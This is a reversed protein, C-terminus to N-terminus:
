KYRAFNLWSGPALISGFPSWFASERFLVAGPLSTGNPATGGPAGNQGVPDGQLDIKSTTKTGEEMFFAILFRDCVHCISTFLM